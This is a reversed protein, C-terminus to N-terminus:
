SLPAHSYAWIVLITSRPSFKWWTPEQFDHEIWLEWPCKLWKGQSASLSVTVKPLKSSHTGMQAGVIEGARGGTGIGQRSRDGIFSTYSSLQSNLKIQPLIFVAAQLHCKLYNQSVAGFHCHPFTQIYLKPSPLTWYWSTSMKCFTKKNTM